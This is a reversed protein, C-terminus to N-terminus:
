RKYRFRRVQNLLALCDIVRDTNFPRRNGYPVPRPFADYANRAYITEQKTVSGALSSEATCTLSTEQLQYGAVFQLGNVASIAELFNGIPIFWDIVFSYPVLEWALSAPNSLGMAQAAVLKEDAIMAWLEVKDRSEIRWDAPKFTTFTSNGSRESRVTRKANLLFPKKLGEQAFKYMSHLDMALPRWGYRWQLYITGADDIIGLPNKRGRRFNQAEQFLALFKRGTEALLNASKVSEALYQGYQVKGEGLKLLCETICKAHEDTGYDIKFSDPVIYEYARDCYNGTYHYYAGGTGDKAISSGDKFTLNCAGRSYTSPDRWTLPGIKRVPVKAIPPKRSLRVLPNNPRDLHGGANGNDDYYQVHMNISQYEAFNGVDNTFAPTRM